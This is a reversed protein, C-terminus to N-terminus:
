GPDSCARHTRRPAEPDRPTHLSVQYGVTHTGDENDTVDTAVEYKRMYPELEKVLSQVPHISM